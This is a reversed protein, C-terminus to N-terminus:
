YRMMMDKEKNDATPPIHYCLLLKARKYGLRTQARLQTGPPQPSGDNRKPNNTVPQLQQLSNHVTEKIVSKARTEFGM